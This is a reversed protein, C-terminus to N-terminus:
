QIRMQYNSMFGEPTWEVLNAVQDKEDFAGLALLRNGSLNNNFVKGDTSLLMSRNEANSILGILVMQGIHYFSPPQDVVFPVEIAFVLRGSSDFRSLKKRDCVLFDVNGSQDVSLTSFFHDKSFKGPLIKKSSGDFKIMRINGQKDTTVMINGSGKVKVMVIDNGSHEFEEDPKVRTTGQRDLIYTRFKDFCVIYDKTGDKFHHVPFEIIGVTAKPKWGTTFKGNRDFNYIKHDSCAVMFRYEGRNEYDFMAVGNTARSKLRIPFNKIEAGNKSILHIAESTNFLLQSEDNGSLKVANIEGIITGELAMRWRELGDKGLSILTNDELQFVLCKSSGPKEFSVFVPKGVIRGKIAYNWFPLKKQIIEPEVSLAASNYVKGNEYVWQWSFNNIMELSRISKELKRYIDPNLHPEFFPLVQGPACWLYFNYSNVLGSAFNAFAPSKILLDDRQLLDLYRKLSGPTSGMLLFGEGATIWDTKVAGFCLDGVLEGFHETPVRWINNKAAAVWEASKQNPQLSAWKRIAAYLADGSGPKTKLLLFQNDAGDQMNQNTFVTAAEGTWSNALYRKIDLNLLGSLQNVHVPFSDAQRKLRRYNFYDEVYIEPNSTCQSAFFTTTSPMQRTLTGAMPKQRKFIDQYNFTTTDNVTFGNLILGNDKQLVDIETWGSFGSLLDSADQQRPLLNILFSKISPHSVYINFDTNEATNKNVKLFDSDELLSPQDMQDVAMRLNTVERGAIFVGRYLTLFITQVSNAVVWEFKQLTAGKYKEASQKAKKSFFYNRVLVNIGNKESISGIEMLYLSAKEIWVFYCEKQFHFEAEHKNNEMLSDLYLIEQHISGIGELEALSKWGRNGATKAVFAGLNRIKICTTATAPIAKLPSTGLYRSEKAFFYWGAFVGTVLLITVIFFMKKAMAM